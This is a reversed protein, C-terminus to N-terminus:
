IVGGYEVEGGSKADVDRDQAQVATQKRGTFESASRKSHDNEVDAPDNRAEYALDKWTPWDMTKPSRRNLPM